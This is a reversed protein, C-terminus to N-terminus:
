HKELRLWVEVSIASVKVKWKAYLTMNGVVKTNFDWKTKLGSDSYWGRFIYGARTTVITKPILKGEDVKIDKITTGGNTEFRVTYQKVKEEKPDEKKPPTTPKPPTPRPRIISPPPTISPRASPRTISPRAVPPRTVVEDEIEIETDLEEIFPDEQVVTEKPKNDGTIYGEDDTILKEIEGEGSTKISTETRILKVAGDEEVILESDEAGLKFHIEEIESSVRIEAKEELILLAVEGSIDLESDKGEVILEKVNGKIILKSGSAEEAVLIENAESDEDLIITNDEGLDSLKGLTAEVASVEIDSAEVKLEGISGTVIVDKSGDIITLSQVRANDKTVIRVPGEKRGMEAREFYSTGELYISDTGGGQIDLKDGQINSLTVEGDEVAADIVVEDVEGDELVVGSAKVVVKEYEDGITVTKSEEIVLTTDQEEPADAKKFCGFVMPLILVAVLLIAMRKISKPKM